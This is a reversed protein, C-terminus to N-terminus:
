AAKTAVSTKMALLRVAIARQEETTAPCDALLEDVRAEIARSDTM